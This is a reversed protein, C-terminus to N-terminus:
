LGHRATLDDLSYQLENRAFFQWLLADKRKNSFFTAYYTSSFYSLSMWWGFSKDTDAVM